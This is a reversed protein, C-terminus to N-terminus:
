CCCCSPKSKMSDTISIITSIGNSATNLISFVSGLLSAGFLALSFIIYGIIITYSAIRLFRDQEELEDKSYFLRELFGHKRNKLVKIGVVALISFYFLLTYISIQLFIEPLLFHLCPKSYNNVSVVFTGPQLLIKFALKIISTYKSVEVESTGPVQDKEPVKTSKYKKYKVFLFYGQIILTLIIPIFFEIVVVYRLFGALVSKFADFTKPEFSTCAKEINAINSISYGNKIIYGSEYNYETSTIFYGFSILSIITFALTLCASVSEVILSVKENEFLKKLSDWKKKFWSM